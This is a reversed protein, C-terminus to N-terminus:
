HTRSCVWGQSYASSISITGGEIMLEEHQNLTESTTPYPTSQADSVPVQLTTEPMNDSRIATIPACISPQLTMSATVRKNMVEPQGDIAKSAIDTNPDSDIPNQTSTLVVPTISVTNEDFKVPFEQASGSSNKMGQPHGIFSPVRWHSNRQKIFTM